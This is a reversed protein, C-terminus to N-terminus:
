RVVHARDGAADGAHGLAPDPHLHAVDAPAEPLLGVECAVLLDDQEGAVVEALRELPDLVSALVQEGRCRRPRLAARDRDRGVVVAVDEADRRVVEVLNTRIGCAPLAAAMPATMKVPGYRM